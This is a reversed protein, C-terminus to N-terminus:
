NNPIALFVASFGMDEEVDNSIFIISVKNETSNILLSNEIGCYNGIPQSYINGNRIELFDNLCGKSRELALDNVKMTILHNDPATLHWICRTNPPYKDPYNTSEIRLIADSKVDFYGGCVTEYDVNFANVINKDSTKVYTVQLFNTAILNIEEMKGCYRNMVIDGAEYGNKVELYDVLCGPSEHINMDKIHLEIKEGAAAQIRWECRNANVLLKNQSIPPGFIGKPDLLTGGCKPCQYLLNTTVIDGFSLKIGGGIPLPNNGIKSTPIITDRHEYKSYSDGPYHMVSYYDYTQNFTNVLNPALKDFETLKDALINQHIIQVYEDRDPRKHEHDFGIAHGLEHLLVVLSDCNNSISIFKLYKSSSSQAFCCGCNLRTFKLYNTKIKRNRKVFKICTSREWERIAQKITKRQTESFVYDIEYPIIGHDWLKEENKIAVTRRSREFFEHTDTILYSYVVFLQIFFIQIVFIQFILGM